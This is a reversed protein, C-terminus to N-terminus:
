NTSIKIVLLTLDKRGIIEVTEGKPIIIDAAANWMTGHLEIKGTLKASDIEEAVIAREGIIDDSISGTVQSKSVGGRFYKKGKDRFLLLTLVSSVIFVLLQIEISSLIGLWTLIATIIAGLGFFFIIFGPIIFEMVMLAIGAIFWFLGPNKLIFEM